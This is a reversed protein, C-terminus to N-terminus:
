KRYEVTYELRDLIKGDAQRAVIVFTNKGEKLNKMAPDAIYNWFTKGPKYLQLQYDNVWVSATEASTTGELLFGTGTAVFAPDAAVGALKLMGPTLPDNKPLETLTPAKSSSSSSSGAIVGATGEGWEITIRAPASKGGNADEAVVDFVNTGPKMNGLATSALYSWTGKSPTFLQLRYDNVLIAATDTSSTGRLVVEVESTRFTEGTKAPSTIIPAPISSTPTPKTGRKVTRQVEQLVDGNADIAQIRLALSDAGEPISLEGTFTGKETDTDAAYGNIKVAAVRDGITGEVSVTGDSIMEGNVPSIVTLIDSGTGSPAVDTTSAKNLLLTRSDTLFSTTLQTTELPSRYIYLDKGMSKVSVGAPLVLQQGEGILIDDRSKATVTVGAGQAHFVYLAGPAVITETDPPLIFGLLPTSVTHTTSGSSAAINLWAAGREMRLALDFGDKTRDSKEIVLTSNADLRAVSGEAFSLSAHGSAGTSLTEGAFLKMGDEAHKSQEGELTVNVVGRDEVTVVAPLREIAGGFGFLRLLLRLLFYLVILAAIWSLVRRVPFSRREEALAYM